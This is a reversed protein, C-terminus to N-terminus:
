TDAVSRRGEYIEYEHEVINGQVEMNEGGAVAKRAGPENEHLSANQKAFQQSWKLMVPWPM